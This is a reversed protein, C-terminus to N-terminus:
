TILGPNLLAKEADDLMMKFENFNLEFFEKGHQSPPWLEIKVNGDPYKLLSFIEETGMFAKIVDKAEEHIDDFYQLRYKKSVSM